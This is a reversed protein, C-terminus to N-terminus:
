ASESRVWDVRPADGWLLELDYYDRYARSFVHFVVDVFDVLVWAAHEYGCRGYPLEGVRKGYEVVRDAATRIQRDSTGTCIVVVDTVPSIGRLDLVVVDESRTEQSIRALEIAFQIANRDEM